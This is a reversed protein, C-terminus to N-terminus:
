VMSTKNFLLIYNKFHVKTPTILTGEIYLKGKFRVLAKAAFAFAAAEKKHSDM